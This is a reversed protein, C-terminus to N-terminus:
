ATIKTCTTPTNLAKGLDLRKGSLIYIEQVGGRIAHAAASLKSAMGGTGGTSVGKCYQAVTSAIQDASINTILQSEPNSPDGTFVGDVNTLILLRTAGLISSLEAALQDNDNKTLDSKAQIDNGNAIILANQPFAHFIDQTMQRQDPQQLRDENILMQAIPTSNLLHMYTQFLLPQGIAALARKDSVHPAALRGRAVAGSSVLLVQQKTHTIIQTISRCIRAMSEFDLQGDAQFLTDTGVKIVTLQSTKM